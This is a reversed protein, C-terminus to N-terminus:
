QLEVVFVDGRCNTGITCTSTGSESGLTGMWDSSWAFFRGDQSIAGIAYQSNFRHSRVSSFTHAFRWTTGSVPSTCIVENYWAVNPVPNKSTFTSYCFPNTDLPDVNNWGEHADYVPVLGAPVTPIITSIATPTAYQRKTFNGFPGAGNIWTTYGETFHGSPSNTVKVVNLTGIQWFFQQNACPACSSVTPTINLFSGSKAMKVNHITFGNTDTLTAWNPVIGSPLSGSSTIVGTSTDLVQCGNPTIAAVYLAGVGGQGGNNSFGASFITEDNSVGGATTWTVTFGTGLCGAVKFDAAVIPTPLSPGSTDYRLYAGGRQKIGYFVDKNNHSWTINDSVSWGGYMKSIAMTSPNFNMMVQSGGTNGLAIKTSDLNWPNSDGSGGEGVFLSSPGITQDTVRCVKSGFDPDNFCTGAGTLNGVNPPTPMPAPNLDSRSCNYTPPGCNGGSSLVILNFYQQASQGAADTIQVNFSFSGSVSSLGGLVGTASRLQMGSPLSGSAISWQYPPTGGTAALVAQYSLGVTAGPITTTTITPASPPPPASPTITVIASASSNSLAVSTATVIATSSTSVAPATFLGTNSVAGVTASWNVAVNSTGVVTANFQQAGGSAIASNIPSVQVTIGPVTGQAVSISMRQDGRDGHPHDTVLVGFGYTGPTIPTGSITGTAPNITLGPPLAGLISFQYPSLGGSVSVVTNYPSGVQAGPLIAQINISWKSSNGTSTIVPPQQSTAALLKGSSISRKERTSSDFERTSTGTANSNKDFASLESVGCGTLIITLILLVRVLIM